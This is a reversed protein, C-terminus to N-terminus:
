KTDNAHALNGTTPNSLTLVNLVEKGKHSWQKAFPNPEPLTQKSLSGPHHDVRSGSYNFKKKKTISTNSSLAEHKGPREVVPAV